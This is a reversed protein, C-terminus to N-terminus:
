QQQQQQQQDDVEVMPAVWTVGALPEEARHPANSPIVQVTVSLESGAKGKFVGRTPPVDAYDRGVAARIHREEAIRNNTPDFGIWGLDPLWAEIWAHTAGAASRDHSEEGHFLYGSIYRAPIGLPRVLALMIHAFDQCVGQRTRLADDIPSDVQTTAPMYDFAAFIETNIRLLLSLPDLSRDLNLSKAFEELLSTPEVFLSPKLFEWHEGADAAADLALWTGWGLAPPLPPPETVEVATDAVIRLEQHRAPIDFHHVANGQHDRYAFIRARPVITLEFSTCRQGSDSRPQM